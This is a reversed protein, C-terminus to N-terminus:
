GTPRIFFRDDHYDEVIRKLMRLVNGALDVVDAQGSNQEVRAADLARRNFKACFLELM